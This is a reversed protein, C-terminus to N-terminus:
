LELYDFSLGRPLPLATPQTHDLALLLIGFLLPVGGGLMFLTYKVAAHRREPGIGWLSILFFIPVLTLEWFLFFLALDIACFVGMTASELLLLLALYLGVQTQVSTWTAAIVALTLLATLAPFLASLGDIGLAYHINLSPIWATREILQMQDSAFDFEGFLSLALLLELGAVALACRRATPADRLFALAAAAILPLLILLTLYPFNTLNM